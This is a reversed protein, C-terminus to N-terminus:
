RAGSVSQMPWFRIGLRFQTSPADVDQFPFRISNATWESFSGPTYTAGIDFAVKPNLFIQVGGGVTVSASNAKVTVRQFQVTEDFRLQRGAIAGEVYPRAQKDGSRFLYRMGLDGQALAYDVAGEIASGYSGLFISLHPTVGWGAELHLGRGSETVVVNNFNTSVASGLLSAGFTFGATNSRHEQAYAASSIPLTWLLLTAFLVRRMM